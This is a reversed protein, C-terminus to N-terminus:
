GVTGAAGMIAGAGTIAGGSGTITAAGAGGRGAFATRGTPPGKATKM